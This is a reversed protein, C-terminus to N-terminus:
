GRLVIACCVLLFSAFITVGLALFAANEDFGRTTAYRATAARASARVVSQRGAQVIRM